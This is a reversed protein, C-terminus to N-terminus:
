GAPAPKPTTTAAPAPEAKRYVRRSTGNVRVLYDGVRLPEQNKTLKRRRLDDRASDPKESVVGLENKYKVPPRKAAAEDTDLLEIMCGEPNRVAGDPAHTPSRDKRVCNTFGVIHDCYGFEDLEPREPEGCGFPCALVLRVEGDAKEVAKEFDSRPDKKKHTTAAVNVPM